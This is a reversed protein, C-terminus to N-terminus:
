FYRTHLVIESSDDRYPFVVKSFGPPGFLGMADNSFGFGETPIGLLNSDLVGNKNEDHFFSIGYEGSPLNGFVIQATRESIPVAGGRIPRNSDFGKEDSFLAVYVVGRDNRLKKITITLKSTRPAPGKDEVDSGADQVSGGDAADEPAVM